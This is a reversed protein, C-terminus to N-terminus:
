VIIVQSGSLWPGNWFADYTMGYDGATGADDPSASDAYYIKNTANSIHDTWFAYSYGEIYHNVVTSSRPWEPLQSANVLFIMPRGDHALDYDANGYLDSEQKIM